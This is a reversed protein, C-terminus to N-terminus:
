LHIVWRCAPPKGQGVGPWAELSTAYPQGDVWAEFTGLIHFQDDQCAWISDPGPTQDNPPVYVAYSNIRLTADAPRHIICEVTSQDAVYCVDACGCDWGTGWAYTQDYSTDGCPEPRPLPTGQANDAEDFVAVHEAAVGGPMTYRYRITRGAQGTTCGLPCDEDVKGDCDNDIDDGCIEPDADCPGWSSGDSLCKAHGFCGAWRLCQVSQGQPDCVQPGGGTGATGGVGGTGSSGGTGSTGGVGGTGSSGGAGSTGGTGGVGSSGGVGANGAEGSSGAQGGSGATGGTGGPGSDQNGGTGGVNGGYLMWTHDYPEQDSCAMVALAFLSLIFALAQPRLHGM